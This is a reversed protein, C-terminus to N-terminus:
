LSDIQDRLMSIDQEMNPISHAHEKSHSSNQPPTKDSNAGNQNQQTSPPKLNNYKRLESKDNTDLFHNTRKHLLLSNFVAKYPPSEAM